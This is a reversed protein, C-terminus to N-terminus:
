GSRGRHEFSGIGNQGTSVQRLDSVPRRGSRSACPQRSVGAGGRNLKWANAEEQYEAFDETPLVLIKARCGHDSANFKSRNKGAETRPGTSKQCNRRNAEIQAATAM